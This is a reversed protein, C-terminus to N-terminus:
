VKVLVLVEVWERINPMTLKSLSKIMEVRSHKMKVRLNQLAIRATSIFSFHLLLLLSCSLSPSGSELVMMKQTKLKVLFLLQTQIELHILQLQHNQLQHHSQILQLQDGSRMRQIGNIMFVLKHCVILLKIQKIM